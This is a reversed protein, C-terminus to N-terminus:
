AMGYRIQTFVLNNKDEPLSTYSTLHSRYNMTLCTRYVSAYNFINVTADIEGSPYM